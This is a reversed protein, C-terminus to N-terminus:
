WARWDISVHAMRNRMPKVLFEIDHIRAIQAIFWHEKSQLALLTFIPTVSTIKMRM